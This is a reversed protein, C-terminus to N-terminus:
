PNYRTWGEFDGINIRTTVTYRSWHVVYVGEREERELRDM